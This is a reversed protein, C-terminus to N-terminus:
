RKEEQGAAGEIACGFAKTQKLRVERGALVADVAAKLDGSPVASGAADDDIRGRYRLTWHPDFVLVEPVFQIGLEHAKADGPDHLVPFGLGSTTEGSGSDVGVLAVGRPGYERAFEALRSDYATSGPCRASVFALVYARRGALAALDLEGGDAQRLRFPALRQGVALPAAPAPAALGLGLLVALV